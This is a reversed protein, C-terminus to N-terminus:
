AAKESDKHAKAAVADCVATFLDRATTIERLVTDDLQLEFRDELITMLELRTLSDLNLESLKLDMEITVGPPEDTVDEVASRLADIFLEETMM